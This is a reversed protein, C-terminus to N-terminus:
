LAAIACGLFYALPEIPVVPPLARQPTRAESLMRFRPRGCIELTEGEQRLAKRHSAPVQQAQRLSTRKQGASCRRGDFIVEQPNACSM